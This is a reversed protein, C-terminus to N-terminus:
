ASRDPIHRKPAKVSIGNASFDGRIATVFELAHPGDGHVCITDTRLDIKKGSTAVVSQETVMIRARIAATEPDTVFADASSRPTLTGDPSYTRDAFVESACPLGEDEAASILDSGSLGYLVLTRDIGAVASAIAKAAAADVAARNYLAGHPKVHHLRGGLAKCMGYLAGVQYLVADSIERPSLSMERRGFGALDPFSPHAGIAVGNDLALEITGRIVGPDGAHFGCAVNASSVLAMIREDNGMSWAGFSEGMDCNLDVTVTGARLGTNENQEGM